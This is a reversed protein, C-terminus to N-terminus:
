QIPFIGRSTPFPLGSWYEQRPFRMSLPAQRAVTWPTNADSVVACECTCVCLKGNKSHKHVFNSRKWPTSGELSKM